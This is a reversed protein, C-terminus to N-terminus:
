WQAGGTYEDADEYDSSDDLEWNTISVDAIPEWTNYLASSSVRAASAKELVHNFLRVAFTDVSEGDRVVLKHKRALRKLAPRDVDMYGTFSIQM